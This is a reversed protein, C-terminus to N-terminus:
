EISSGGSGTMEDFGLLDGGAEVEILRANTRLIAAVVAGNGAELAADVIIATLAWIVARDGHVRSLRETGPRVAAVCDAIRRIGPDSQVPDSGFWFTSRVVDYPSVDARM